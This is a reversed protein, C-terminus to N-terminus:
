FLEWEGYGCEECRWGNEHDVRGYEECNECKSYVEM